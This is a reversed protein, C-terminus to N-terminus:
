SLKEEALTALPVSTLEPKIGFINQFLTRERRLELQELSLDTMGPVFIRLANGANECHIEKVRQSRSADLSKAVRLLAALKSVNARDDRKLQSYVEHRLQPLARRHYRAVLAILEIDRSSLGFFNSNRIVYMSHKHYSRESIARGVEHLIAAMRLLLLWKSSLQHLPQTQSFLQMALNDVHLSHAEDFGFRRGLSVAGHVIQEDAQGIVHDGSLLDKVLGERLNVNAVYLSKVGLRNALHLNILLAPALSQAESVSLQYKKVLADPMTALAQKTFDSFQDISIPVMFDGSADGLIQQAAMRMEGGMVVLHRQDSEGVATSIQNATKEIQSEMLRGSKTFPAQLAELTKILRLAGLRYTNAFSVSGAEMVLMETTGGGVEFIITQGERFQPHADLLPKIGIFTTRHLSAEDFPEIALGTAIYIRDAFALRNDAERVASTAVVRIDEPRSIGYERLKQQYATLVHVCDEITSRRIEGNLFSDRGLQVAQSLSELEAVFGDARIEAIMMRVSTAGIDIVAVIRTEFNEKQSDTVREM